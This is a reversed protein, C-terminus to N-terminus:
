CADSWVKKVFAIRQVDNLTDSANLHSRVGAYNKQKYEIEALYPLYHAAPINSKCGRMFMKKAAELQNRELYIKGTLADLYADEVLVKKAALIAALAKNLIIPKLEPLILHHYIFEWYLQALRKQIKASSLEDLNTDEILCLLTKVQKGLESAQKDLINFALLRMEDSNDPLLQYMYVNVEAIRRQSLEFLAQTRTTPAQQSDFLHMVGGGSGYRTQVPRISALNYTNDFLEAYQHVEGQGQYLGRAIFLVMICGLLPLSLALLFVFLYFAFPNSPYRKSLIVYVVISLLGCAAGHCAIAAMPNSFGLLFLAIWEACFVCSLGLLAVLLRAM